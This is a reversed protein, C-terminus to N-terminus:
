QKKNKHCNMIFNSESAQSNVTLVTAMTATRTTPAGLLGDKSCQHYSAM